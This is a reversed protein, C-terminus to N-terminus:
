SEHSSSKLGILGHRLNRYASHALSHSYMSGIHHLEISESLMVRPLSTLLKQHRRNIFGSSTTVATKFGLERSISFEREGVETKTGFPYAFHEVERGTEQEIKHKAAQIEQLVKDRDLSSLVPHTVTHAGITVLKDASLKRIDDWSLMAAGTNPSVGTTGQGQLTTLWKIAERQEESHLSMFQKRLALFASTKEERTKCRIPEGSPGAIEQTANLLIDELEMWWMQTEGSILGTTVYICFPVKLESLVPYGETLNDLYGDDFTLAIKRKPHKGQVLESWIQDMSVFAWGNRRAESVFKCLFDASVKMNENPALRSQDQKGVRHLYFIISSPVLGALLNGLLVNM